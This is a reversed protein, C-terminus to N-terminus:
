NSCLPIFVRHKCGNNSDVPPVLPLAPHHVKKGLFILHHGTVLPSIVGPVGDIYLPFLKDQVQQGGADESRRHGIDQPRTHDDVDGVQPPLHLAKSGAPHFEARFIQTDAALGGDAQGGM